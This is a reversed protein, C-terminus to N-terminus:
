EHAGNLNRVARVQEMLADGDRKAAVIADEIAEYRGDALLAALLYLLVNLHFTLAAELQDLRTQLSKQFHRSSGVVEVQDDLFVRIAERILDAETVNRGRQGALQVLLEHTEQSMSVSRRVSKSAM